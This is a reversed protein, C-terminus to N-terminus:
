FGWFRFTRQLMIEHSLVKEQPEFEFTYGLKFNKPLMLRISTEHTILIRTRKELDTAEQLELNYDLFLRRGLYKSMSLSLNNLLISSSFQSVDSTFQKMDTTKALQDPDNSYQTYLNQIFGASISFNDLKLKRRIFNEVPSLIPTLLTSDLNGSILNLAEDQLMGNQNVAGPATSGSYRLRALIQSITRDQPNDSSLSFELRDMFSKSLDNSTSATLTILSGDPARKIFVGDVSLLDQSDVMKIDVKEVQFVTGFIDISGRESSFNAEEVAFDVGDYLLHLYGGQMLNLRAPYTVYSVNEGLTVMVDLTFPLPAPETEIKKSAATRVTNALSLLNDTNPPFLISSNSVVVEASIKMMDFPGKVTAFRSNRGKLVFNTLTRPPSFLPINALIGPEEVLIRFIGLDLFGLIFHDSSESEFFNSFLLKGEGMQFQGREIIIRNKDFTGKLTIGTLPESQDKLRLFGNNIELNGGTFMFQEEFTGIVCSISSSGKAEEVYSTINDIWPFLQGVMDLKLVNNGEYFENKVVNYDLAGSGTLEFLGNAFVYLSDLQLLKPTQTAKIIATNVTYGEFSIDSAQLDANIDMDLEKNAVDRWVIGANGHLVGTVPSDILVDQLAFGNFEAQLSLEIKKKLSISGTLDLLRNQLSKIGGKVEVQSLPGALNLEFGLPVVALLDIKGLNLKAQVERSGDLNYEAFLSLGSFDPISNDLAPYFKIIDNATINTLAVSFEVDAVDRTNLRGSLSLQKNINLGSVKLQGDKLSAALSFDVPQDNMSGNKSYVDIAAELTKINLWGIGDLFSHYAVVGNLKTDLGFHTVIKDGTMIAKLSGSIQPQIKQLTSDAYIQSAHLDKFSADLLLNRDLLDGVLSLKFGEQGNLNADVYYSNAESLPILSVNGSVGLISTNWGHFDVNTLTANVMPYKDLFEAYVEFEGSGYYPQFDTSIPKTTLKADLAMFMTNFDGELTFIQNDFNADRIQYTAVDDQYEASIVLNKLSYNQYTILNSSANLTAEPDKLTGSASATLDVYGSLDPSIMGLDAGAQVSLAEISFHSSLGALSADAILWSSGITSRSLQASLKDGDTEASLFPINVAYKDAFYAETGWIQAKAEFSVRAGVSDQTASGIASIETSFNRVDPHSAFKPRFSSIEAEAEAIRGKDLVGHVTIKGKNASIAELSIKSSGNNIVSLNIDHLEEGLQLDGLSIIKLPFSGVFVASGNKIRLSSFYPAIDPIIFPKSAKPPKPKHIYRYSVVPQVIDIEKLLRSVKFGSFMFRTLNYQVRLRQVQFSLSSDAATFSIGEALLQRDSIKLDGITLKGSMLGGLKDAALQRVKGRLGFGYWAVFFTTNVVLLVLILILFKKARPM